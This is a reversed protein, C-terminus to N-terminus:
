PSLATVDTRAVRTTRIPRCQRLSTSARSMPLFGRRSDGGGLEDKGIVLSTGTGLAYPQRSPQGMRREAGAAHM